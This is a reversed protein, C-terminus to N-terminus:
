RPQPYPTTILTVLFAPTKAIWLVLRNGKQRVGPRVFISESTQM